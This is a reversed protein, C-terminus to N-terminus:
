GLLTAGFLIAMGLLGLGQGIIATDWVATEYRRHSLLAYGILTAGMGLLWVGGAVLLPLSTALLLGALAVGAFLAVLSPRPLENEVHGQYLTNQQIQTTM